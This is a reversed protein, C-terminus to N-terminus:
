FKLLTWNCNAPTESLYYAIYLATIRTVEDGWQSPSSPVFCTRLLKKSDLITAIHKEYMVHYMGDPGEDIPLM